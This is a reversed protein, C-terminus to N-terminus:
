PDYAPMACNFITSAGDALRALADADTADLAERKVRL